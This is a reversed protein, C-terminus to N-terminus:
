CSNEEEDLTKVAVEAIKEILSSSLINRLTEPYLAMCAGGHVPIESIKEKVKQIRKNM